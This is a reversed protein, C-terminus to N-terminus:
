QANKILLDFSGPVLETGDSTREEPWLSAFTQKEYGARAV